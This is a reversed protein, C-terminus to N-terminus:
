KQKQKGIFRRFFVFWALNVILLIIVLVLLITTLSVGAGKNGRIAYGVGSIDLSGASIKLLLNKEASKENYKVVLKGDYEGEQVGATDWYAILEKRSLAPIDESASKVDAMVQDNKNYVLLNAFVNKLQENWKNEVLIQLKAIQGLTFDNVLISELSLYSIGVAFQKETEKSEGDYFVTAKALYNGPPVNVPWKATLETRAGPELPAYDTDLTAIKENLATYIDIVARVEKIGLQGRSIVPLIFTATTNSEADLVNLDAEVYKGPFPVFVYLQTVVAVTAGVYTGESSIDPIELAVVDATHLGPELKEPLKVNYTFSKSEESPLFEIINSKKNKDKDEGERDSISISKNLEGQILFIIQMKKHENNLVSFPVQRELHPEFNLTSRGPTIGLASVNKMLLIFIFIFGVLLILGVIRLYSNTQKNESM